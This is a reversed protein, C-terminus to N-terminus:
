RAASMLESPPTPRALPAPWMLVVVAARAVGSGSTRSARIRIDSGAGAPKQNETAIGSVTPASTNRPLGVVPTPGLRGPAFRVYEHRDRACPPHLWCGGNRSSLDPGGGWRPGFLRHQHNGPVASGSTPFRRARRPRGPEQRRPSLMARSRREQTAALQPRVTNVPPGLVTWTYSASATHGSSDTAQVTFTHSGATLGSYSQTTPSTCPGLTAGDLSCAGLGRHRQGRVQLQGHDPDDPEPPESGPAIAVSIPCPDM